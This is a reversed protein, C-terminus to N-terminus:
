RISYIQFVFNFNQKRKNVEKWTKKVVHFMRCTNFYEFGNYGGICYIHFGIVGTGHYARPGAPDESSINVWRDARTDYTEISSRPAGGNWGGIAFIVEHPLRPMAIRPTAVEKDNPRMMDLEYLFSLTELILPRAELCQVVYPHDKVEDM